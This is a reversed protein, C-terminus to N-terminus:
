KRMAERVGLRAMCDRFVQAIQAEDDATLSWEGYWALDFWWAAKRFMQKLEPDQIEALYRSNTKERRWSIKDQRALERLLMLFRYRVASRYNQQALAERLMEELSMSHIDEEAGTTYDIGTSKDRRGFLGFFAGGMLVRVLLVLALLILGYGILTFPTISGEDGIPSFLKQMLWFRIEDWLSPEEPMVVNYQYEPKDRLADISQEKVSRAEIQQNDHPLDITSTTSEVKEGATEEPEKETFIVNGSEDITITSNSTWEYTAQDNEQAALPSIYTLCAALCLCILRFSFTTGAGIGPSGGANNLGGYTSRASKM